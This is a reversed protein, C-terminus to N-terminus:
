GVGSAVLIMEGSDYRRSSGYRYILEPPGGNEANRMSEIKESKVLFVAMSIHRARILWTKYAKSFIFLMTHEAYAFLAPHRLSTGAKDFRIQVFGAFSSRLDPSEENWFIQNAYTELMQQPVRNKLTRVWSMDLRQLM